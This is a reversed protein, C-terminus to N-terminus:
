ILTVDDENLIDAVIEMVWQQGVETRKLFWTVFARFAAYIIGTIILTILTWGAILPVLSGTITSWGAAHVLLRITLGAASSLLMFKAAQWSLDRIMLSAAKDRAMDLQKEFVHRMANPSGMADIMEQMFDQEEPM